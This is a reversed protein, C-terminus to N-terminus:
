LEVFMGKFLERCEAELGLAEALKGVFAYVAGPGKGTVINGSIEAPNATYALGNLETEFGPYMTFVKGNLLNRKALVFPAACIAGIIWNGNAAKQLIKDVNDDADLNAAGPMGGPLIVADFSDNVVEPLSTDAIIKMGHAGTVCKEELSALILNMGLRRLVDATGLAEIEEFGDALILLVNKM